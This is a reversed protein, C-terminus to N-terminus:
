SQTVNRMQVFSSSSFFRLYVEDEGVVVGVSTSRTHKLRFFSESFDLTEGAGQTNAYNNSTVFSPFIKKDGAILALSAPLKQRRSLSAPSASTNLKICTAM